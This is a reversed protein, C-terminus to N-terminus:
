EEREVYLEFKKSVTGSAGVVVSIVKVSWRLQWLRKVERWFYQCKMVKEEEKGEVRDDGRFQLTWSYLMRRMRRLFWM